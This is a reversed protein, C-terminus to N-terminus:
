TQIKRIEAVPLRIQKAAAHRQIRLIFAAMTEHPQKEETFLPKFFMQEPTSEGGHKTVRIDGEGNADHVTVFIQNTDTSPM